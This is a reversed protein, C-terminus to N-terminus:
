PIRRDLKRYTVDHVRACHFSDYRTDCDQAVCLFLRASTNMTPMNEKDPGPEIGDFNPRFSTGTTLRWWENVLRYVEVLPPKAIRSGRFLGPNARPRGWISRWWEDWGEMTEGYDNRRAPGRGKPVRWEPDNRRLWDSLAMRHAHRCQRLLVVLADPDLDLATERPDDAEIRAENMKDIILQAAQAPSDNPNFPLERIWEVARYPVIPPRWSM